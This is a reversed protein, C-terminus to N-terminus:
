ELLELTSNWQRNVDMIHLGSIGVKAEHCDIFEGPRSPTLTLLVALMRQLIFTLTLDNVIDQVVYKTLSRQWSQCCLRCRTSELM